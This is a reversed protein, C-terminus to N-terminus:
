TKFAHQTVLDELGLYGAVKFSIILRVCKLSHLMSLAASSACPPRVFWCAILPTHTAVCSNWQAVDVCAGCDVCKAEEADGVEGVSGFFRADRYYVNASAAAPAASADSVAASNGDSTHASERRRPRVFKWMGDLASSQKGQGPHQELRASVPLPAQTMLKAESVGMVAGKYTRTKASATHTNQSLPPRDPRYPEPGTKRQSESDKSGADRMHDAASAATEAMLVHEVLLMAFILLLLLSFQFLIRTCWQWSGQNDNQAARSRGVLPADRQEGPNQHGVVASDDILDCQPETDADSNNCTSTEPSHSLAGHQAQELAGAPSTASTSLDGPQRAPSARETGCYARVMHPPPWMTEALVRVRARRRSVRRVRGVGSCVKFFLDVDM